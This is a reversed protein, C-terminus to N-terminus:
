DIEKKYAKELVKSKQDSDIGANELAKDICADPNKKDAVCARVEELVEDNIKSKGM